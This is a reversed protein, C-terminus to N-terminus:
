WCGGSADFVHIFDRTAEFREIIERYQHERIMGYLAFAENRVERGSELAQRVRERSPYFVPDALFDLKEFAPFGEVHVQPIQLFDPIIDM